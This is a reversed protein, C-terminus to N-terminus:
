DGTCGHFIWRFGFRYWYRFFLKPFDCDSLRVYHVARDRNDVVVGDPWDQKLFLGPSDSRCDTFPDQTNLVDTRGRNAPEGRLRYDINHKHDGVSSVFRSVGRSEFSRTIDEANPFRIPVLVTHESPWIPIDIQM